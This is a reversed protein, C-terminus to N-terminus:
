DGDGVARNLGEPRTTLTALILILPVRSNADDMRRRTSDSLASLMTCLQLVFSRCESPHRIMGPECEPHMTTEVPFGYSVERDGPHRRVGFLKLDFGLLSTLPHFQLPLRDMTDASGM